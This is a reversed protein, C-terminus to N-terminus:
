GWRRYPEITTNDSFASVQAVIQTRQVDTLGAFDRAIQANKSVFEPTEMGSVWCAIPQALVFQFTQEITLLSPVLPSDDQGAQAVATKMLHGFAASKMALNAVGAHKNAPVVTNVYSDDNSPDVANIPLLALDVQQGLRSLAQTHATTSVHGSLGIYRVKGQAKAQQLADWVGQDVRANLDDGDSVAHMLIADVRDTKLRALSANLEATAEPGSRAKTKTLLFIDDRYKPTLLLGFRHESRGDQYGPATDFFRIGEAIATEIIEQAAADGDAQGIHHGGVGLLTVMEEARGLPRMPLREGWQDAGGSVQTVGLGPIPDSM